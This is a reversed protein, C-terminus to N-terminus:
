TGPGPTSAFRPQFLAKYHPLQFTTDSSINKPALISNKIWKKSSIDSNSGYQKDRDYISTLAAEAGRIDDISKARSLNKTTANMIDDDLSERTTDNARSLSKTTANMIDDDLSERTTDVTSSINQTTIPKNIITDSLIKDTTPETSIKTSQPVNFIDSPDGNSTTNILTRDYDTSSDNNQTPFTPRAETNGLTNNVTSEDRISSAGNSSLKDNLTTYQGTSPTASHSYDISMHDDEKSTSNVRKKFRDLSRMLVDPTIEVGPPFLSPHQKSTVSDIDSASDQESPILPQNTSKSSGSQLNSVESSPEFPTIKKLQPTKSIDRDSPKVEADSGAFTPATTTVASPPPTTSLPATKDGALSPLTDRINSINQINNSVLNSPEIVTNYENGGKLM